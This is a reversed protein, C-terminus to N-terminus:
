ILGTARYETAPGGGRKELLGRELLEGIRRNVTAPSSRTKSRVSSTLKGAPAWTKSGDLLAARVNDSRVEARAVDIEERHALQLIAIIKDLRQGLEENSM